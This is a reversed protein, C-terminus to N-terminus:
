TASILSGLSIRYWEMIGSSDTIGLCVALCASGADGNSCYAIDGAQGTVFNELDTVTQPNLNLIDYIQVRSTNPTLTLPNGSSSIITNPLVTNPVLSSADLPAVGNASNRGNIVAILELLAAYIDARALSPDDSASDVNSTSVNSANGWGM